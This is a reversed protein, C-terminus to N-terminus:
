CVERSRELIGRMFACHLIPTIVKPVVGRKLTSQGMLKVMEVAVVVYPPVCEVPAGNRAVWPVANLAVDERRVGPPTGVDVHTRAGCVM